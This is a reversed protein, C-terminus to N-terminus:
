DSDEVVAGSSFIIGYLANLSQGASMFLSLLPIKNPINGDEKVRKFFSNWIQDYPTKTEISLTTLDEKDVFGYSAMSKITRLAVDFKVRLTDREIDSINPLRVIVSHSVMNRIRNDLLQVIDVYESGVQDARKQILNKIQTAVAARSKTHKILMESETLKITEVLPLSDYDVFVLQDGKLVSVLDAGSCTAIDGLVNLNDLSQEIKVPMIEFKKKDNNAKLTAYVEEGFGQAVIVLPIKTKSSKLLIKDLEAVSEIIGDVCLIKVDNKEWAGLQGLFFKYTTAKFNYGYRLEISYGEQKSNELQINGEMGALEIAQWLIEELMDNQLYEKVVLEASDQDFPKSISLVKEKFVEKVTEIESAAKSENKHTFDEDNLLRKFLDITFLTTMYASGASTLENRQIAKFIHSYLLKDWKTEPKFMYSILHYTNKELPTLGNVLAVDVGSVKKELKGISERFQQIIQQKTIFNTNM